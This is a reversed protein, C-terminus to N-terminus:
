REQRLIKPDRAPLGQARRRARHAFGGAFSVLRRVTRPDTRLGTLICRAADRMQGSDLYSGACVMWRNAYARRRVREYPESEPSAYFKDLLAFTERELVGIDSSMTGPASRYFVLPEDLLSVKSRVSMRLWMDWDACLSFRPDFGGSQEIVSARVLVSSASGPLINGELLLAETWDNREPAPQLFTPQLKDDVFQTATFCLGVEPREKLLAHQRDLKAPQWADDADLFAVYAGCSRAVGRNRAVSVGGNETRVCSVRPDDRSEAVEATDDRSGDDIVILEFDGFTQALVSDVAVGVTREANYAPIIVSIEPRASM